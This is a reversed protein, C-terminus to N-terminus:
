ESPRLWLTAHRPQLTDVVAGLLATHLADIDTQQRCRETLLDLVASADYKSRYFRRDVVRQIRSRLPQFATAVLLTSATVALPGSQGTVSRFVLDILVIGAVYALALMAALLGCILTKRIIVDIEYLRYRLVAVGTAIPISTVAILFLLTWLTNSWPTNVIWLVPGVFFAAVVLCCASALWKLQQRVVGDARRFRLFLSVASAAMLALLVAFSATRFAGVVRGAVGGLGWPNRYPADTNLDGPAFLSTAVFVAGALIELRAVRRWRPSQTHGDPFLLLLAAIPLLVIPGNLVSAVLAATAGDTISSGAHPQSAYADALLGTAAMVAFGVFLWGIRNQPLRSVVIAGVTAFTLLWVVTLIATFASAHPPYDWRLVAVAVFVVVVLWASWALWRSGHASV